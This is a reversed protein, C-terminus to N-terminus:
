CNTRPSAANWTATATAGGASNRSSGAALGIPSDGLALAAVQPQSGQILAYAGQTEPFKAITELYKREDHSLDDPKQLSHLFPIDTLHVGLVDDGDRALFETITSGWDGGHAAFQRYGLHKTMLEHWLDGVHFVTGDSTPRDSFAYGPLSPAVVDFSDGADGGHSGAFHCCPGTHRERPM